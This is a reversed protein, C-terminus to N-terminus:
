VPNGTLERVVALLRDREFPKELYCVGPLRAPEPVSVGSVILMPVNALRQYSHLRGILEMGNMEPMMLDIILLGPAAQTLLQDLAEQGSFASNVTFGGSELCHRMLEQADESDDVVLVMRRRPFAVTPRRVAPDSLGDRQRRVAALLDGPPVPKGLVIHADAGHHAPVQDHRAGVLLVRDSGEHRARARALLEDGNPDSGLDYDSVVLAFEQDDDLFQIAQQGNAAAVVEYDQSLEEVLSRLVLANDEVVLAKM